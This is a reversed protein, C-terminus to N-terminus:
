EQVSSVERFLVGKEAGNTDPNSLPEVTTFVCKGSVESLHMRFEREEEEEEEEEEGSSSNIVIPTDETGSDVAVGPGAWAM